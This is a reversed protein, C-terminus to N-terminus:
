PEARPRRVFRLDALEIRNQAPGVLILDAWVRDIRAPDVGGPEDRLGPSALSAPDFAVAVRGPEAGRVLRGTNPGAAFNLRAVLGVPRESAVEAELVLLHRPGFADPELDFALSVYGGPSAFVEIALAFPDAVVQRLVIEPAADGHWLTVGPALMTGSPPALLGPPLMPEAWPLPHWARDEASPVARRHLLREFLM